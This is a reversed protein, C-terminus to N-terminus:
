KHKFLYIFASLTQKWFSKRKLFSRFSIRGPYGFMKRFITPDGEKEM